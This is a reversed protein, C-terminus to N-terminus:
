VENVPKILGDLTSPALGAADMAWQYESLTDVFFSEEDHASLRAQRRRQLSIVDALGTEASM